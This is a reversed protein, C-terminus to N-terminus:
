KRGKRWSVQSAAASRRRQKSPNSCPACSRGGRPMVLVCSSCPPTGGCWRTMTVSWRLGPVLAILARHFEVSSNDQGMVWAATKRIEAVPSKSLAVIQPYFKRAGADGKEIREEIRSLAHQMHRPNKEETLYKAIDEDSLDRGFWTGYWTLFPVIIFLAAVVILPWSAKRRKQNAGIEASTDNDNM